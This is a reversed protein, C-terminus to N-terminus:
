LVVAMGGLFSTVPCVNSGRLDLEQSPSLLKECGVSATELTLFIIAWSGSMFMHEFLAAKTMVTAATLCVEEGEGHQCTSVSVRKLFHEDLVEGLLAVAVGLQVAFGPSVDLVFVKTGCMRTM